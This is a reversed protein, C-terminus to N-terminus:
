RRSLKTRTKHRVTNLNYYLGHNRKLNYIIWKQDAYRNKFHKILLALINFHAEITTFFIDNKRLKFCIFADMRHKELTVSKGVKSLKLASPDTFNGYIPSDNSFVKSISNILMKEVGQAERLFSKYM